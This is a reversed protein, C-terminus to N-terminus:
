LSWVKSLGKMWVIIAFKQQAAGSVFIIMDIRYVNM